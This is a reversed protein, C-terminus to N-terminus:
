PLKVDPLEDASLSGATQKQGHSEKFAELLDKWDLQLYTMPRKTDTWGFWKMLEYPNNIHHNVVLHIARCHRLYHPHVRFDLLEMYRDKPEAANLNVARIDIGLRTFVKFATIRTCTFLKDEDSELAERYAWVQKAMEGEIGELLIPLMRIPFTSKSKSTQITFIIANEQTELQLDRKELQLVESIRAGTLYSCYFLIRHKNKPLRQGLSYLEEVSVAFPIPKKIKSLLTNAAFKIPVNSQIKNGEGEGM